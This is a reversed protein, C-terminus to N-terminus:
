STHKQHTQWRQYFRVMTEIEVGSQQATTLLQVIEPNTEEKTSKSDELSVDDHIELAKVLPKDLLLTALSGTLPTVSSSGSYCNFYIACDILCNFFRHHFIIYYRYCEKHHMLCKLM